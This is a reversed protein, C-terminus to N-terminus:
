LSVEKIKIRPYRSATIGMRQYDELKRLEKDLFEKLAARIVESRCTYKGAKVLEDMAAVMWPPIKVTVTKLTL